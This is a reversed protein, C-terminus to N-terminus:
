GDITVENTQLNKREKFKAQKTAFEASPTVLHRAIAGSSQPFEEWVGDADTKNTM